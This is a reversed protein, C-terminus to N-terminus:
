GYGLDRAMPLTIDRLRGEYGASSREPALSALMPQETSGILMRQVTGTLQAPDEELDEIRRAIRRQEARPLARLTTFAIRSLEVRWRGGGVESSTWSM